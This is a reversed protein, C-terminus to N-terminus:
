FAGIYFPPIEFYILVVLAAMAVWFWPDKFDKKVEDWM